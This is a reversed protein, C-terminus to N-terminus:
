IRPLVKGACDLCYISDDEEREYDWIDKDNQTVYALTIVYFGSEEELVKGCVDCKVRYEETKEKSLEKKVKAM